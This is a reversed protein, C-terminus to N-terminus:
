WFEGDYAMIFLVDCAEAIRAYDYNRGEYEPYIPVDISVESGPIASHIADCLEVVVDNFGETLSPSHGEYDVNLGDIGQDLAYQVKEEM